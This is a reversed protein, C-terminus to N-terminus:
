VYPVIVKEYFLEVTEENAWHNPSHHIHFGDSFTFKARCSDTKGQYLLQMPLFAGSLTIVFTATIQRKDGLGAIEVRRSGEPAMTSNEVPVLKIGTEELKIILEPPIAHAKVSYIAKPLQRFLHSPSVATGNERLRHIYQKIKADLAGVLAVKQGHKVIELKTAESSDEVKVRRSM